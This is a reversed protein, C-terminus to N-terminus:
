LKIVHRAGGGGGGQQPRKERAALVRQSSEDVAEEGSVVSGNIEFVSAPKANAM